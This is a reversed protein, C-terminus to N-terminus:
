KQEMESSAERMSTMKELKDSYEIENIADLLYKDKFYGESYYDISRFIKVSGLVTFGLIILAVIATQVADKQTYILSAVLADLPVGIFMELIKGNITTYKSKRANLLGECESKLKKLKENTDIGHKRFIKDIDEINSITRHRNLLRM